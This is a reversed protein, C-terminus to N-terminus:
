SRGSMSQLMTRAGSSIVPGLALLPLRERLAPLPPEWQREKDPWLIATPPCQDSKNYSGARYIAQALADLFTMSNTM